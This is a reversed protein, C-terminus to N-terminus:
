PWVLALSQETLPEKAANIPAPKGAPGCGQSFNASRSVSGRLETNLKRIHFPLPYSLESGNKLALMTQISQAHRFLASVPM